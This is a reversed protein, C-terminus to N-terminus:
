NPDSSARAGAKNRVHPSVLVSGIAADAFALRAAVNLPLAAANWEHVNTTRRFRGWAVGIAASIGSAGLGSLLVRAAALAQDVHGCYIAGGYSNPFFDEKKEGIQEFLIRDLIEITAVFQGLSTAASLDCCRVFIAYGERNLVPQQM